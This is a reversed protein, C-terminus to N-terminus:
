TASISGMPIWLTSKLTVMGRPSLPSAAVAMLGAPTSDSARDNTLRRQNTGDANIVYIEWNKDRNSQFAITKGDPSWAPYQDLGPNSTLQFSKGAEAGLPRDRNLTVLWIDQGGDRQSTFAM